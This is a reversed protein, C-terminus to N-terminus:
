DRLNHGLKFYPIRFSTVIRTYSVVHDHSLASQMEGIKDGMAEAEDRTEDVGGCWESSESGVVGQGCSESGHTYATM